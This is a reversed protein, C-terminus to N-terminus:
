PVTVGILGKTPRYSCNAIKGSVPKTNQRPGQGGNVTWSANGNNASCLYGKTLVSSRMKAPIYNKEMYPYHVFGGWVPPSYYAFCLFSVLYVNFANPGLVTLYCWRSRLLLLPPSAVM